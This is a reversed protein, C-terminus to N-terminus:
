LGPALLAVISYLGLLSPTSRKTALESGPRQTEFGLHARSEEVTTEISCRQIYLRHGTTRARRSSPGCRSAAAPLHTSPSM